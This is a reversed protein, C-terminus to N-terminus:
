GHPTAEQPPLPAGAIGHDGTGVAAGTQRPRTRAPTDVPNAASGLPWEFPISGDARAPGLLSLLPALSERSAPAALASGQMRFAGTPEITASGSLQLAGSLTALSMRTARGDGTVDLQYDGLRALRASSADRWVVQAAGLIGNPIIGVDEGRVEIRGGVEWVRLWPARDAIERASVSLDADRLHVGGLGAIVLAKGRPEPGAVRVDAAIQGLALRAGRVSWTVDRLVVPGAVTDISVDARGDWISGAVRMLSVRGETAKAVVKAGVAAPLSVLSAVTCTVMAVSSYLLIAGVRKM